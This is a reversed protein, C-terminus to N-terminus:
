DFVVQVGFKKGMNVLKREFINIPGRGVQRYTIEEQTTTHVKVDIKEEKTKLSPPKSTTDQKKPIYQKTTMDEKNIEEHLDTFNAELDKETNKIISNKKANGNRARQLRENYKDSSM